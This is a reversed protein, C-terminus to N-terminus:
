LKNCQLEVIEKAQVYEQWEQKTVSPNVKALDDSNNIRNLICIGKRGVNYAGNADGNEPLKEYSKRSDFFPEVPSLIFDNEPTGKDKRDDTVRMNMISNFHYIMSSHLLKGSKSVLQLQIDLNRKYDIGAKTLTEKIKDTVFFIEHRGKNGIQESIINLKQEESLKKETKVYRSRSVCSCVTWTQRTLQQENEDKEKYMRKSLIRGLTYTFEFRDLEANYIISDFSKWFEVSKEANQYKTYVNKLFGTVPDTTSTYSATTYFLIGSQKGIKQFSVFKDTLQYANLYHGADLRSKKIKFVLYNLKDILAKEFKQYVQKEVGFRGRKFGTNLDELVVIANYKVILQSLKHVVQSLYGAKLEKINEIVGWSKRAKDRDKQLEDLKHHYNIKRVTDKGKPIFGNDIKNLSGQELIDGHQNIVSYYLLHKEGRDIGIINVNSNNKLFNRIKLNFRGPNSSAKTNLTIPCHFFFKDETFRKDKIIPYSFKDKLKEAHHGSMLKEPTYKVSAKRFFIEAQGNLKLVIDKLNEEDFLLKWYSTHLNDKGYGKRNKSFDKSYIQFLYLEGSNVKEHIFATSIKEFNLSYFQPEIENYFEGINEYERKDNFQFNFYKNWDDNQKIFEIYYRILIKLENKNTKFTENKKISLIHESPKLIKKWKESFAIRPIQKKLDGLQKYVMKSYFETSIDSSVYNELIKNSKPTMIGLYYLGNKELIVGYNDLEKNRDWGDLLTSNEFNIKIKESASPKKTVHNRVMNYLNIIQYNDIFNDIAEYWHKNVNPKAKFISDINWDKVRGLLANLSDLYGKLVAVQEFGKDGPKSRNKDIEKQEFLKSEHLANWNDHCEKVLEKFSQIFYDLLINESNSYKEDISFTENRLGTNLAEEIQTFSFQKEKNFKSEGLLELLESNISNWDNVLHQSFYSIKDKRIFLTDKDLEKILDTFDELQKEIFSTKDVSFFNENHFNKVAEFLDRDDNFEPIFTKESKSLIQKYMEQMPPFQQRSGKVQQRCLNIFENIGKIKNKGSLEPLGGIYENYRDIGSQNVFRIFNEVTFIEDLSHRCVGALENLKEKWDYNKEYFEKEYKMLSKKVTEWKKINSIHFKLNESFTRHMISTSIDGKTDYVNARNENFGSFYTYFKNFSRLYDKLTKIPILNDNNGQELERNTAKVVGTRIKWELLQMADENSFMVEINKKKISKEPTNVKKQIANVASKFGKRRQINKETEIRDQLEIIDEKWFRPMELCYEKIWNNATEDLVSKFLKSLGSDYNMKELKSLEKIKIILQTTIENKSNFSLADEIFARHMEDLLRKAYKYHEAIKADKGILKDEAVGIIDHRKIWESTMGVPKLEFRLTKSLQYQKTFCSLNKRERMM